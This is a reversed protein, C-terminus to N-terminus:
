AGARQLRDYAKRSVVWDIDQRVGGLYPPTIWIAPVDVHPEDCALQEPAYVLPRGNASTTPIHM